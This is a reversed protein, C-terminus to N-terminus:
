QAAPETLQEHCAGCPNTWGAPTVETKSGKAALMAEIASKPMVDFTHSRIDGERFGNAQTQNWRATKATKPMHCTICRGMKGTGTPDYTSAAMLGNTDTAGVETGIHGMVATGIAADAVGTQELTDVMARTITDFGGKSAKTQNHCELCVANNDAKYTLQHAESTGGHADHCDICTVTQIDNKFMKGRVEDFYQQHHSESHNFAAGFQMDNWVHGPNGTENFTIAEWYDTNTGFDPAAQSTGYMQAPSMGARFINISSGAVTLDGKSAFGAHAGTDDLISGAHGRQHCTGCVMNLRGPTLLDPQVIAKGQGGAARHESGPGHCRECGINGAYVDPDIQDIYQTIFNGSTDKTIAVGGHCGGCDVGFSETPAGMPETGFGEPAFVNDGDAAPVDWKGSFEGNEGFAAPFADSMNSENWQFPAPYYYADGGAQVHATGPEGNPGVLLMFRQKYLGEGGYTFAVKYTASLVGDCAENDAMQMFYGNADSTLLAYHTTGKAGFSICNGATTFQQLGKNDVDPFGTLDQLSNTQNPVRFGLFHLTHKLGTKDSAIGGDHCVLCAASGIFTADASPNASIEIDGEGGADADGDVASTAVVAGNAVTVAERGPTSPLHGTDGDAPIVVAYYTGDAVAGEPISYTGDAATTAVAGSTNTGAIVANAVDEMPQISDIAQVDAASVLVVRADAVPDDGTDTVTGSALTAPTGGGGGGGDDSGDFWNACGTLTGAVLLAGAATAGFRWWANHKKM